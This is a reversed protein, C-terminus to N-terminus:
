ADEDEDDFKPKYNKYRPDNELEELEKNLMKFSKYINLFAAAIGVALCFYFVFRSGTLKELYIGAFVGIAIAVVISLGLSLVHAGRIVKNLNKTVRM